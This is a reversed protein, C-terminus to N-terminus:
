DVALYRCMPLEILLDADAISYYTLYLLNLLGFGLAV